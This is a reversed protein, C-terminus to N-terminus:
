PPPELTGPLMVQSLNILCIGCLLLCALSALARCDSPLRAGATARHMTLLFVPSPMIATVPCIPVLVPGFDPAFLLVLAASLGAYAGAAPVWFAGVRLWGQGWPKTPLVGCVAAVPLLALASALSGVVVLRPAWTLAAFKLAACPSADTHLVSAVAVLLTCFFYLWFTGFVLMLGASWLPGHLDLKTLVWGPRLGCRFLEYLSRILVQHPQWPDCHDLWTPIHERLLGAQWQEEPFTLGCEPCRPMTLGRLNYKCRPCFLDRDVEPTM